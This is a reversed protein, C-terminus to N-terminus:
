NIIQGSEALLQRASHLHTESITEGGLLRAIAEPREQQKLQLQYLDALAQAQMELLETPSKQQVMPKSTQNEAM